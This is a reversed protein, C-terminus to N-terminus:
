AETLAFNVLKKHTKVAYKYAKYAGSNAREEAYFLVLDSQDIMACNRYYISTYWWDFAKCPCELSEYEKRQFWRPPKRLQQDLPFCFVRKVDLVAEQTKKESVIDYVLDDFDSRGGFLFIRVGDAIAKDIEKGTRIRLEDTIEVSFHGFCSCVKETGSM